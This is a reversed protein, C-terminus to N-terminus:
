LQTSVSTGIFNVDQASSCCHTQTHYDGGGGKKKGEWGFHTFFKIQLLIQALTKCQM